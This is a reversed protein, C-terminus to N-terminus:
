LVPKTTMTYLSLQEWLMHPRGSVYILGMNGANVPLNRLM